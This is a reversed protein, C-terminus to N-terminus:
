LLFKSLTMTTMNKMFIKMPLGLICKKNAIILFKKDVQMIWNLFERFLSFPPNKIIVDSEDRLKKVEESRFDGELTYIKGRLDDTTPSYQPFNQEFLSLPLPMKFKKFNKTRPTKLKLCVATKLLLVMTGKINYCM